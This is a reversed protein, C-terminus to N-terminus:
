HAVAMPEAELAAKAEAAAKERAAQLKAFNIRENKLFLSFFLALAALVTGGIFLPIISNSMATKLAVLFSNFLNGAPDFAAFSQKLGNLAEPSTLANPGASVLQDLPLKSVVEGPLHSNVQSVIETKLQGALISGFLAVCLASGLNRFFTLLGMAMGLNRRDMKVSVVISYLPFTIGLGFGFISMYLIVTWEASGVGLTTMLAAAVTIVVGAFIAVWKYQEVKTGIFRGTVITGVVLAIMAPTIITGSNTASVGLVAQMFLPLYSLVTIMAAGILFTILVSLSFTPNRFVKLPVIPDAVRTEVVLFAALTVLSLVFGGLAQWSTWGLTADGGFQFGLMLSTASVTMLSAGLWDVSKKGTHEVNRRGAEPLNVYLIIVALIGVPASFFFVWRWNFTDVIFGGLTPGFVSSIGFAGSIAAQIKGRDQPPFVTQALAIAVPMMAGAGLGQVGRFIVLQTMDQAFGSAISGLMFIAMGGLYFPMRGYLDSLKGYIPTTVTSSLIYASFVWGLLEIGGLDTVVRPMATGVITGDLAELLVGLLLGLTVLNTQRRSMTTNM